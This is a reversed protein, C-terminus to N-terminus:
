EFIYPRYMNWSINVNVFHFLVFVLITTVDHNILIYYIYLFTLPSACSSCQIMNQMLSKRQRLVHFFVIKIFYTSCRHAEIICM